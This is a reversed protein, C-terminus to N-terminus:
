LITLTYDVSGSCVVDGAMSRAEMDLHASGDPVDVTFTYTDLGVDQVDCQIVDGSVTCPASWSFVRYGEAAVFRHDGSLVGLCRGHEPISVETGPVVDLRFAPPLEDGGGDGGCGACVTSGGCAALAVIMSVIANRM